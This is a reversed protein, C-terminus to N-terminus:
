QDALVVVMEFQRLGEAIWVTQQPTGCEVQHAQWRSNPSLGVDAQPGVYHVPRRRESRSLGCVTLRGKVPFESLRGRRAATDSRITVSRGGASWVRGQRRCLFVRALHILEKYLLSGSPHDASGRALCREGQTTVGTSYSLPERGADYARRWRAPSALL